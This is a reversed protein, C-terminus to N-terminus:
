KPMNAIKASVLTGKLWKPITGVVSCSHNSYESEETTFLLTIGTVPKEHLSQQEAYCESPRDLKREGKDYKKEGHQIQFFLCVCFLIIM